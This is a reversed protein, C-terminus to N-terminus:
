QRAEPSNPDILPKRGRKVLSTNVRQLQTQRVVGPPFSAPDMGTTDFPATFDGVKLNAAKTPDVRKGM